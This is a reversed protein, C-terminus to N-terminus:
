VYNFDAWDGGHCYRKRTEQNSLEYFDDESLFFDFLDCNEKLRKVSSAKPITPIGQQVLWRLAIQAATKNYHKGMKELLPDHVLKGQGLSRYSVIQIGRELCYQHLETQNLYPHFEVQNVAIPLKLHAIDELHRTTFNSVGIAKALGLDTVEKMQAMVANMDKTRDPWHMLFLDLYDTQLEELCQECAEKMTHDDLHYPMVKSTLYLEKRPLNKIARAIAHHNEYLLATDIHRYGLEVAAEIMEQCLNDKLLYTGVGVLPMPPGYKLDITPFPM